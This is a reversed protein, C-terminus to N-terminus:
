SEQNTKEASNTVFWIRETAAFLSKEQVIDAQSDGRKWVASGALLSSTQTKHHLFQWLSQIDSIIVHYAAMLRDHAGM